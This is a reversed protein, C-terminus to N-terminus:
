ARLAATVGITVLLLVVGYVIEVARGGALAGHVALFAGVVLTTVAATLFLRDRPARVLLPVRRGSERVDDVGKDVAAIRFPAAGASRRSESKSASM